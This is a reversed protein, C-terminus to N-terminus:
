VGKAGEPAHTNEKDSDILHRLANFLDDCCDLQINM